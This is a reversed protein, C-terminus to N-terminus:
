SPLHVCFSILGGRYVQYSLCHDLTLMNISVFTVLIYYDSMAFYKIM